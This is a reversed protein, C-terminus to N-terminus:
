LVNSVILKYEAPLEEEEIFDFAEDKLIPIFAYLPIKDFESGYASTGFSLGLQAGQNLNRAFKTDNSCDHVVLDWLEDSAIKMLKLTFERSWIPSVYGQRSMYINEGIYNEINNECLHLEACNIFDIKTDLIQNKKKNFSNFFEPTMPTEIGVNEIYKKAIKMHDIVKDSCNSAGLNFRIENLGAEGLKKLNDETVLLGNTYLHQHIGEQSFKRIVSYYKEIELFPELYVYAVSSPKDYISLILDIDDEYYLTGAIDWMGEAVPLQSDTNNHYYCFSCKLNCKNTKRIPCLGNKTLCSKCGEPFKEQNGVFLSRGNFSKINVIDKILKERRNQEAKEIQSLASYVLEIYKMNQRKEDDIGVLYEFWELADKKSIKMNNEM